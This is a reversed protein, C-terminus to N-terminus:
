NAADNFEALNRLRENFNYLYLSSDYSRLYESNLQSAMYLTNLNSEGYHKTEIDQLLKKLSERDKIEAGSLLTAMRTNYLPIGNERVGLLKQLKRVLFNRNRHEEGVLIPPLNSVGMLGNQFPIKKGDVEMFPTLRVDKAGLSGLDRITSQIERLKRKQLDVPRNRGLFDEVKKLMGPTENGLVKSVDTPLAFNGNSGRLAYSLANTYYFRQFDEHVGLKAFNSLTIQENQTLTSFYNQEDPTLNEVGKRLRQFINDKGEVAIGAKDLNRYLNAMTLRKSRTKAVVKGYEGDLKEVLNKNIDSANEELNKIGVLKIKEDQLAFEPKVKRMEGLQGRVDGILERQKFFSSAMDDAGFEKNYGEVLGNLRRVVTMMEPNQVWTDYDIKERIQAMNTDIQALLKKKTTVYEDALQSLRTENYDVVSSKMALYAEGEANTLGRKVVNHDQAIDLDRLVGDFKQGNIYGGRMVVKKRRAIENLQPLGSETSFPVMSTTLNVDATDKARNVLDIYRTITGNPDYVKDVVDVNQRFRAYLGEVAEASQAVTDVYEDFTKNSFIDDLNKDIDKVVPNYRQAFDQEYAHLAEFSQALDGYLKKYTRPFSETSKLQARQQRTLNSRSLPLSEVQTKRTLLEAHYTQLNTSPTKLKNRLTTQNNKIRTKLRGLSVDVNSRRNFFQNNNRDQLVKVLNNRENRLFDDTIDANTFNQLTAIEQALQSSVTDVRLNNEEYVKRLVNRYDERMTQVEDLMTNVADLYQQSASSQADVKRLEETLEKRLNKVVDKNQAFYDPAFPDTLTKNLSKRLQTIQVDFKDTSLTKEFLDPEFSKIKEELETVRDVFTQKRTNFKALAKEELEKALDDAERQLHFVKERHISVNRHKSRMAQKANQSVSPDVTLDGSEALVPRTYTKAQVDDIRNELIEQTRTRVQADMTKRTQPLNASFLRSPRNARSSRTTSDVTLGKEIRALEKERLVKDIRKQYGSVFTGDKRRYGKVAVGVEIRKGTLAKPTSAGTLLEQSRNRVKAGINDWNARPVQTEWDVTPTDYGPRLLGKPSKGPPLAQQGRQKPLAELKEAVKDWITPATKKGVGTVKEIGLNVPAKDLQKTILNKVDGLTQPSKPKINVDFFNKNRLQSLNPADPKVNIKLSNGTNLQSLKPVNDAQKLGPFPSTNLQSLNPTRNSVKNAPKQALNSLSESVNKAGNKRSLLYAAGALSAAGTAGLALNRKTNKQENKKKKLM